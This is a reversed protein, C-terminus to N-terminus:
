LEMRGESTPSKRISVVATVEAAAAEAVAESVEVPKVTSPLSPDAAAVTEAAALALVKAAATLVSVEEVPTFAVACVAIRKESLPSGVVVVVM